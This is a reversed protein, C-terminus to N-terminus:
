TADGGDNVGAGAADDFCGPLMAVSYPPYIGTAIADEACQAFFQDVGILFWLQWGRGPWWVRRRM